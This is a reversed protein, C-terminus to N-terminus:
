RNFHREMYSQLTNSTYELLIDYIVYVGQIVFLILHKHWDQLRNWFPFLDGIVWSALMVMALTVGNLFFLKLMWQGIKPLRIIIEKWLPYGGFVLLYSIAISKMPILLMGLLFTALYAILAGKLNQVRSLTLLMISSTVLLATQSVPIISAIWLIALSLAAVLGSFAIGLPQSDKM